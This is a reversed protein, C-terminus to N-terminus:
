CNSQTISLVVLVSVIVPVVIFRNIKLATNSAQNLRGTIAAVRPLSKVGTPASRLVPSLRQRGTASRAPERGSRVHASRFMGGPIGYSGDVPPRRLRGVDTGYAEGEETETQCTEPERPTAFYVGSM